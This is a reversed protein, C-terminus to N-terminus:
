IGSNPLSIKGGHGLKASPATSLTAKVRKAIWGQDIQYLMAPKTTVGIGAQALLVALQEGNILAIPVANPRTAEIRAGKAFDSTTILLGHEHAGLSGRVKQVEPRQVNKAWKKVQVAMRIRVADGVVLTARVDIGGDGSRRTEEVDEFDLFVMLEAVLTEFDGWDMGRVADILQRRVKGNQQEISAALGREVWKALGVMGNGHQVFRPERARRQDRKIETLVQAYLTAEPTKGQTIVLHRSLAAKTIERYHMPKQQPNDSLIREAADTFSCTEAVASGSTPAPPTAATTAAQIRVRFRNPGIREFRSAMGKAKIDSSIRATVTAAPTKGAPTWLNSKLILDTIERASLGGPSLALVQAAADLVTM